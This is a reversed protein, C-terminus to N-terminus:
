MSSKGYMWLMLFQNSRIMTMAWTLKHSDFPLIIILTEFKSVLYVHPRNILDYHVGEWVSIYQMVANSFPPAFFFIFFTNVTLSYDSYLLSSCYWFIVAIDLPISVKNSPCAPLKLESSRNNM